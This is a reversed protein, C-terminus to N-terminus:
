WDGLCCQIPLSINYRKHYNNDPMPEMLPANRAAMKTPSMSVMPLDNRSVKNFSIKDASFASVAAGAKDAIAIYIRIAAIRATLGCPSKGGFPRQDYALGFFSPM